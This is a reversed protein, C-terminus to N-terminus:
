QLRWKLRVNEVNQAGLEGVKAVEVGAQVSAGDLEVKLWKNNTIM